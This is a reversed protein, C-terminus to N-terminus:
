CVDICFPTFSHILSHIHSYNGIPLDRKLRRTPSYVELETMRGGSQVYVLTCAFKHNAVSDSITIFTIMHKVSIHAFTLSITILM